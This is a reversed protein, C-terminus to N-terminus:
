LPDDSHNNAPGEQNEAETGPNFNGGMKWWLYGKQAYALFRRGAPALCCMTPKCGQPYLKPIFGQQQLFTLTNNTYRASELDMWLLYCGSGQHRRIFPIVAIRLVTIYNHHNVANGVESLVVRFRWMPLHSLAKDGHKFLSNVFNSPLRSWDWRQLLSDLFLAPLNGKRCDKM